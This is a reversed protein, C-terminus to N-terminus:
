YKNLLEIANEVSTTDAEREDRLRRNYEKDLLYRKYDRIRTALNDVPDFFFTGLSFVDPWTIGDDKIEIEEGEPTILQKYEIFNIDAITKIEWGDAGKATIPMFTDYEKKDSVIKTTSPKFYKKVIKKFALYDKHYKINLLKDNM